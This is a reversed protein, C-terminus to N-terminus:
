KQAGLCVLSGDEFTAYVKGKSVALGHYTLPAPFSKKELEKGTKRDLIHVFGSSKGADPYSGGAVVVSYKSLALATVQLSSPRYEWIKTPKGSKENRNWASVRSDWDSRNWASVPSDWDSAVITTSDWAFVVGIIGDLSSAWRRRIGLKKWHSNAFGETGEQIMGMNLPKKPELPIIQTKPDPEEGRAKSEDRASQAKRNTQNWAQLAKEYEVSPNEVIDGSQM